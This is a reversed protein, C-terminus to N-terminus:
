SPKTDFSYNTAQPNLIIEFGTELLLKGGNELLLVGYPSDEFDNTYSGVSPKSDNSFSGVSPETDNSYVM